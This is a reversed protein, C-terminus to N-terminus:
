LDGHEAVLEDLSGFLVGRQRYKEALDSSFPRSNLTTAHGALEVGQTLLAEPAIAGAALEAPLGFKDFRFLRIDTRMWEEERRSPLELANFRAWANRRLETLWVPEARAVLFAEFAESTFGTAVIAQTM